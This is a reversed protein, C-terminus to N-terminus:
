LGGIKAVLYFYYCFTQLFNPSMLIGFVVSEGIYVKILLMTRKFLTLVTLNSIGHGM